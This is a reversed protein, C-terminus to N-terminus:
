RGDGEIPEDGLQNSNPTGGFGAATLAAGIKEVAGSLGDATRGDGCHRTMEAIAADWADPKIKARITEDALVIVRRELLSAFILVGDRGTTAAVGHDYFVEKARREVADQMRSKGILARKIPLCWRGLMAGVLGAAPVWPILRSLPLWLPHFIDLLFLAAVALSMGAGAGAWVSEPYPSSQTFVAPVIEARLVSEAKAVAARVKEKDESTM